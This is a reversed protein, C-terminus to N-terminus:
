RRAPGRRRASRGTWPARGADRHLRVDVQGLAADVVQALQVGEQGVGHQHGAEPERRRDRGRGPAHQLPRVGRLAPGSSRPATSGRGAAPRCCRRRRPATGPWRPPRRRPRQRHVARRQAGGFGLQQLPEAGGVRMTTVTSAAPPSLGAVADAPPSSSLQFTACRAARSMGIRCPRHRVLERLWHRSLSSPSLGRQVDGGLDRHGLEVAADDGNRERELLDVVVPQDGIDGVRLPARPDGAEGDPVRPQPVDGGGVLPDRQHERRIGVLCARM